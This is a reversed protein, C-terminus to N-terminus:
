ATTDPTGQLQSLVHKVVRERNKLDEKYASTDTDHIEHRLTKVEAELVDILVEREDKTLNCQIM